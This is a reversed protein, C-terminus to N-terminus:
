CPTLNSSHRRLHFMEPLLLFTIQALSYAEHSVNSNTYVKARSLLLYIM